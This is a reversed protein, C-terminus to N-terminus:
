APTAVFSNRRSRIKRRPDSIQLRRDAQRAGFSPSPPHGGFDLSPRDGKARRPLYGQRHPFRREKTTVASM